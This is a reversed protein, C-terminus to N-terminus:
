FKVTLRVLFKMEGERIKDRKEFFFVVSKTYYAVFKLEDPNGHVIVDDFGVGYGVFLFAFLSVNTWHFTEM